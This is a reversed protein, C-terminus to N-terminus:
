DIQVFNCFSMLQNGSYPARSPIGNITIITVITKSPSRSGSRPATLLQFSGDTGGARIVGNETNTGVASASIPKNANPGSQRAAKIVVIM